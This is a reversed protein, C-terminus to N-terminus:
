EGKLGMNGRAEEIRALATEDGTFKSAATDLAEGAADRRGLVAYSRALRLWEDVTGGDENLRDALRSVMGEIMERREEPSMSQAADVDEQTPSPAQATDVTQSQEVPNPPNATVVDGGPQLEGRAQALQKLAAENGAFSAEAKELAERVADARNLVAYSRVLRLWEEVTGGDENLRDALRSVMGEIMERREDESMSQAADVDERTPSPAQGTDVEDTPTQTGATDAGGGLRLVSRADAIQKLAEDNGAFNAEAKELAMRADESRNLVSYARALRLWGQLDSGDAALRDALGQVMGDVMQHREDESLQDAAALQEKDLEPVGALSNRASNLQAEVVPRWPADKGGEDLLRQWLAIASQLKGDQREALGLYFIAKFQTKDTKAAELFSARAEETVLGQEALVLAEGHNTLTEADRGLISMARAYASAADRFRRQQLYAPAIIKWGRGDEPQKRLHDEVKLILSALDQDEVSAQQREAFPQSPLQPSGVNVYVAVAVAPVCIAVALMAFRQGPQREEAVPAKGGDSADASLAILRRSVELRASEGEEAGLLGEEIERDIQKLQDRYIELDFAERRKKAGNARSLPVLLAALCLATLIAFIFWILM